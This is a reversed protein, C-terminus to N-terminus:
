SRTLKKIEAELKDSDMDNLAKDAFQVLATKDRMKALADVSIQAAKLRLSPSLNEDDMIEQIIELGREGNMITKIAFTENNLFWEKFGFVKWWRHIRSDNTVQAIEASTVLHAEVMPDEKWAHWFQSKIERQAPRPSYVTDDMSPAIAEGADTITSTTIKNSM